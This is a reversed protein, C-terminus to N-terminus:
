QAKWRGKVAKGHGKVPMTVAKGQGVNDSGNVTRESGKRASESVKGRM